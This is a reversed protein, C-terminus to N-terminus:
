IIKKHREYEGKKLGPEIIKAEEYTLGYLHYVMVDIEHEWTSTDAPPDQKKAPLIKDVLTIFPKQNEKEIDPIPINDFYNGFWKIGDKGWIVSGLKFYFLVVKSNLIASLYKIDQSVAFSTSDVSFEGKESIAFANQNSLRTWILKPQFFKEYYNCKRLEYWKKLGYKAEYVEELQNKHKKLYEYVGPYKEIEINTYTYILYEKPPLILYRKINAGKLVPKLIESSKSDQQIIQDKDHESIIFVDNSGTTIGRNISIGKGKIFPIGATEIKQKLQQIENFDFSWPHETFFQRNIEKGGTDIHENLNECKTAKLECTLIPKESLESKQILLVLSGVNANEFVNIENFNIIQLINREALYRRLGVGYNTFCFRNSSIFCLIANEKLLNIGREYFLCYIDSGKTFTQFSQEKLNEIANAPLKALSIYPPNGIVIDFGKNEHFVESFFLKFDFDIKMGLQRSGINLIAVLTDNIQKRLTEKKELSYEDFLQMKLTELTTMAGPEYPMGILSNGQVIKYDLNPLPKVTALDEEDVVLSLWLRLKAIDIASHDIDVGYISELICHRKFEYPTRESQQDDPLYVSLIERAKVIENMMGVPFAGSGIAPDCIRINALARDIEAVHNRVTEELFFTYDKTERGERVVRADNDIASIGERILKEIDKRPVKIVEGHEVVLDLQGEKYKNGFVDLQDEGVSQYVAGEGNLATDLYNILSEQCMYHVIERPTYFAGKSKRDKVDLLNEFVKGLMEPDVAIEKDLPEDEKVTFNYRDFIDLIGDGIDGESTETTNSFFHDPINTTINKWDYEAEFLGGNLFPIKCDLYKYYAPDAANRREEALAEYFLFKLYDNFFNKKQTRAKEWLTRLFRKDGKGWSEDKPVGLWGKKQLFYLFVIQGLLKKAFSVTDIHKSALEDRLQHSKQFEERFFDNLDNFLEKYKKFFERTVTEINFASEIQALTPLADTALLDTLQKQATHSKENKGVLFSFRKAPTLDDKKKELSYQMKVLSFRWDDFGETHFSVLAADKLEGGRSGNLYRRIFNRQTTRAFEVSHGRKLEVILIDIINGDVDEYKGLRELKRIYSSFADPLHAGAQIFPKVEYSEKLLNKIFYTYRDKNFPYEFTRQILQRAELLKM